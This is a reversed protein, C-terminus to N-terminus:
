IQQFHNMGIEYINHKSYTLIVFYIVITLVFLEAILKRIVDIKSKFLKVELCLSGSDSM